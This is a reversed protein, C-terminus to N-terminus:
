TVVSYYTDYSEYSSVALNKLILNGADSLKLRYLEDKNGVLLSVSKENYGGETFPLFSNYHFRAIIINDYSIDNDRCISSLGITAKSALCLHLMIFLCPHKKRARDVNQM